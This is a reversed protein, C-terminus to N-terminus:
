GPHFSVNMARCQRDGVMGNCAPLADGDRRFMGRLAKSDLAGPERINNFTTARPKM